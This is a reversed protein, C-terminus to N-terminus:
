GTKRYHLIFKVTLQKDRSKLKKIQLIQTHTHTHTNLRCTQIHIYTHNKQKM